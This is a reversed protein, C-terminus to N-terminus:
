SMLSADKWFLCNIFISWESSPSYSSVHTLILNQILDNVSRKSSKQFRLCYTFIGSTEDFCRRNCLYTILYYRHDCQVECKVCLSQFLLYPVMYKLYPLHSMYTNKVVPESEIKCFYCEFTRSSFAGLTSVGFKRYLWSKRKTASFWQLLMRENIQLHTIQM